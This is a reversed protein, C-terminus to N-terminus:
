LEEIQKNINKLREKAINKVIEKFEEDEITYYITDYLLSSYCVIGVDGDKKIFAEYEDKLDSLEKYKKIQKENM